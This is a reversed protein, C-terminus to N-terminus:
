DSSPAGFRDFIAVKALGAVVVAAFGGLFLLTSKKM